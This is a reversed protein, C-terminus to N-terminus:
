SPKKYIGCAVCDIQFEVFVSSSFHFPQSVILETGEVESFIIFVNLVIIMLKLSFHEM